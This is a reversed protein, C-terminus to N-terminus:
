KRTIKRIELNEVFAQVRTRLQGSSQVTYNTEISVSPIDYDNVIEDGLVAKEYGWYDCFKITEVLIGDAHFEKALQINVKRRENVKDHTSYRPCLSTDLYYKAVSKIPDDYDLEIHEYGPFTGFCYRDAVILAGTQEMLETFRHDAIESGVVAIRARYQNMLDPKRKKLEALTEEIYPIILKIPCSKVVLNLIHMETGTIYVKEPDKRLDSIERMMANLKNKMEVADIIKQNSIDIGYNKHMPELLRTKIQKALYNYSNESVSTPIDLFEVFFQDNKVLNLLKFEEMARNMQACTESACIGGLYNFGNELGRELLSRTVSCTFSSMYYTGLQTTASNPARMRVGFAGDLNLLVEPAYYCTYGLAVDGSEISKEVLENCNTDILKEFFHIHKLDKM